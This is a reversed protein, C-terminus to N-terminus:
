IHFVECSAAVGFLMGEGGGRGEEALNTVCVKSLSSIFGGLKHNITVLRSYPYEEEGAM